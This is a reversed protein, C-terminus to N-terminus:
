TVQPLRLTGPPSFVSVYLPVLLPVDPVNLTHTLLRQIGLVEVVSIFVGKSIVLAPKM